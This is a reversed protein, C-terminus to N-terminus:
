NRYYRQSGWSMPGEFDAATGVPETGGLAEAVLAALTPALRLSLLLEAPLPPPPACASVLRCAGGCPHACVYPPAGPLPLVVTRKGPPLDPCITVDIAHRVGTPTFCLSM